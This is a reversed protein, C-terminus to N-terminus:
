KGYPLLTADPLPVVNATDALYVRNGNILNVARDNGTSDTKIYFQGCTTFCDGRRLFDFKVTMPSDKQVHIKM